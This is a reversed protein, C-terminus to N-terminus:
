AENHLKRLRGSLQLILQIREFENLWDQVVASTLPSMGGSKLSIAGISCAEGSQESASKRFASLTRDGYRGCPFGDESLWLVAPVRRGGCVALEDALDSDADRDFYRIEILPSVQTFHEFIPCQSICDGCWAGAVVIVPMRRRFSKLLVAQSDSLVIGKHAADWRVRQEPTAYKQLFEEYRLGQNWRALYDM